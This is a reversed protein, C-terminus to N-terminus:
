GPTPLEGPAESHVPEPRYNVVQRFAGTCSPHTYVINGDPAFVPRPTDPIATLSIGCWACNRRAVVAAMPETTPHLEPMFTTEADSLPLNM